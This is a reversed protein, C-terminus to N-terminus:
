ASSCPMASVRWGAARPDAHIRPSGYSSGPAEFAAAVAADIQARRGAAPAPPRDHWKHFWSGSVGLARCSVAYRLWLEWLPRAPDLRRRALEQCAALLEAQGGPAAVPRVAIHDALDFASANVWLPWGLGLRPRGACCHQQM